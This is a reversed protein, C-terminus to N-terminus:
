DLIPTVESHLATLVLSGLEEIPPVADIVDPAEITTLNEFCLIQLRNGKVLVLFLFWSLAALGISAGVHMRLADRACGKNMAPQM